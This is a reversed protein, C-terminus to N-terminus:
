SLVPLFVGLRWEKRASRAKRCGGVRGLIDQMNHRVIREFAAHDSSQHFLTARGVARNLIHYVYVGDACRM